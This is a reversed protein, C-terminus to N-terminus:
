EVDETESEKNRIKDHRQQEQSVFVSRKLMRGVEPRSLSGSVVQSEPFVASAPPSLWTDNDTDDDRQLHNGTILITLM